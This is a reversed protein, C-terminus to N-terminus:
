VSPEWVYLLWYLQSAEFTIRVDEAILETIDAPWDVTNVNSNKGRSLPATFATLKVNVTQAFRANKSTTFNELNNMVITIELRTDFESFMSTVLSKNIM